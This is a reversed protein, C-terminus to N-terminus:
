FTTAFEFHVRSYKKGDAITEFQNKGDMWWMSWQHHNSMKLTLTAVLGDSDTEGGAFDADTLIAFVADKEVKQKAVSLDLKGLGVALGVSSAQNLESPNINKVMQGFLSLRVPEVPIQLELFTEDMNYNYLYTSDPAPNTSNGRPESSALTATPQGAINTAAFSGVGIQAKWGAYEIKTRLQLGNFFCDTQDVYYEVNDYLERIWFSGVASSLSLGDILQLEGKAGLGELTIDRDLILQSKGVFEYPSPIRGASVLVKDFPTYNIAAVDLGFSRRESPKTKNDGLTQSGSGASAGTMMRIQFNLTERIDFKIGLRASMRGQKREEEEGRKESQVRVKVEGSPKFKPVFEAESEADAVPAALPQGTSSQDPEAPPEASTPSASQQAVAAVPHGFTLAGFAAMTCFVFSVMSQASLTDGSYKM